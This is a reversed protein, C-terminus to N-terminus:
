PGQAVSLEDKVPVGIGRVPGRGPQPIRGALTNQPSPELSCRQVRHCRGRCPWRAPCSCPPEPSAGLAAPAGAPPLPRREAQRLGPRAWPMQTHRGDAQSRRRRERPGNEQHRRTHGAPTKEKCGTRAEEERKELHCAVRFVWLATILRGGQPREQDGRGALSLSRAVTDSGKSVADDLPLFADELMEWAM